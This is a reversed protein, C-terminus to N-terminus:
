NSHQNVLAELLERKEAALKEDGAYHEHIELGECIPSTAQRLSNRRPRSYSKVPSAGIFSGDICKEDMSPTNM